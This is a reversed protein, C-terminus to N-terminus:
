VTVGNIEGGPFNYVFTSGIAELGFRRYMENKLETRRRSFIAMVLPMGADDAAQKCHEMLLRAADGGARYEPRIYFWFDGLYYSESFWWHTPFLGASGVLRKEGDEVILPIGTKLVQQMAGFTLETNLPIDSWEESHFALMTGFLQRADKDTALRVSFENKAPAITEPPLPQPRGLLGLVKPLVARTLPSMAEYGLDYTSKLDPNPASPQAQASLRKKRRRKKM